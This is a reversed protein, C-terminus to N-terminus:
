SKRLASGGAWGMSLSTRPDEVQRKLSPLSEGRTVHCRGLCELDANRAFRGGAVPSEVWWNKLQEIADDLQGKEAGKDAWHLELSHATDALLQRHDDPFPVTAKMGAEIACCSTFIGALIKGMSGFDLHVKGKEFYGKGRDTVVSIAPVLVISYVPRLVCFVAVPV